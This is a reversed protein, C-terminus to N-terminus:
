NVFKKEKGEKGRLLRNAKALPRGQREKKSQSTVVLGQETGLREGGESGDWSEALEM